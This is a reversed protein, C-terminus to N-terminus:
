DQMNEITKRSQILFDNFRHLTHGSFEYCLLLFREAAKKLVLFRGSFGVPSKKQGQSLDDISCLDIGFINQVVQVVQLLM